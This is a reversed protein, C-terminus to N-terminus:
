NSAQSTSVRAKAQEKLKSRAHRKESEALDEGVKGKGLGLLKGDYQRPIGENSQLDAIERLQEESLSALLEGVAEDLLGQRDDNVNDPVTSDTTWQLNTPKFELIQEVDSKNWESTTDAEQRLLLSQNGRSPEIGLLHVRVGFSQAVQVGIRIDEDGSLLLADSIAHNRALEILDTVILSDVGKQQGSRNVIGFRLKVNDVSALRQQEPSPGQSRMGDYWYIRLLRAGDARNSATEGLKAITESINLELHEQRQKSGALVTSGAGYLYGADAFVAVRFSAALM